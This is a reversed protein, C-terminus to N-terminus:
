VARRIRVAGNDYEMVASLSRRALKVELTLGSMRALGLEARVREGADGACQWNRIDSHTDDLGYFLQFGLPHVPYTQMLRVQQWHCRVVLM